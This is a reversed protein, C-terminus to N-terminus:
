TTVSTVIECGTSVCCLGAFVTDGRAFDKSAESVGMGHELISGRIGPGNLPKVM